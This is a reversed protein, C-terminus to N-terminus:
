HADQVGGPGGDDANEGDGVCSPTPLKLRILAIHLVSFADAFKSARGPSYPSGDADVGTFSERRREALLAPM